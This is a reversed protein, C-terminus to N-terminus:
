NQEENALGSSIHQSSWNISNKLANAMEALYIKYRTNKLTAISETAQRLYKDIKQECYHFSGKQLVIQLISEINKYSKRPNGKRIADLNAEIKKRESSNSTAYSHILPLNIIGSKLDKSVIKGKQSLDAMDDLLQYAIGLNEGFMSLSYVESQTGGGILAGCYTSAKFLSASKERIKRFYMEENVTKLSFTVDKYVGDCLKLATQAVTHLVTEDYKSALDVALAILADGTLIADNISWKKHVALKGRRTKDQDIIDDHVLTATHMLEFALALPMIKHRDGGVSEASLIVLLPRLRKGESLVAYEIQPQLSLHSVGHVIKLLESEIQSRTRLMYSEFTDETINRTSLAQKM